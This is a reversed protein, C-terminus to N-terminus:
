KQHGNMDRGIRDAEVAEQAGMPGLIDQAKDGAARHVVALRREDATEQVVGLLEEVILERGQLAIRALVPCLPALDVEREQDVTKRRFALLADGDVDGITEERGVLAGEDDGVRGAVLLIRAVHRGAGRGGIEGHQEDIRALAEAPLGAPM